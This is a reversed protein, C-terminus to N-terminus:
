RSPRTGPSQYETFKRKHDSRHVSLFDPQNEARREKRETKDGIAAQCLIHPKSQSRNQPHADPPHCHGYRRRDRRKQRDDDIRDKGEGVHRANRVAIRRLQHEQQRTGIDDGHDPLDGAHVLANGRVTQRQNAGGDPLLDHDPKQDRRHKRCHQRIRHDRGHQAGNRHRHELEDAFAVHFFAAGRLEHEQRDDPARIVAAHECREAAGHVQDRDRIDLLQHARLEQVGVPHPRKPRKCQRYRHQCKHIQQQGAFLFGKLTGFGIEAIQAFIQRFEAACAANRQDHKRCRRQQRERPLQILPLERPEFGAEHKQDAAQEHEEQTILLFLGNDRPLM